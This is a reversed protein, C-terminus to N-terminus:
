VQAKGPIGVTDSTIQGNEAFDVPCITDDFRGHDSRALCLRSLPIAIGLLVIGM